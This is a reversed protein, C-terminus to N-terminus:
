EDQNESEEILDEAAVVLEEFQNVQAVLWRADEVTELNYGGSAIVEAISVSM